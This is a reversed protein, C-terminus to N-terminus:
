CRSTRAPRDRPDARDTRRGRTRGQADDQRRSLWDRQEDAMTRQYAFPDFKLATHGSNVIDQIERIVGEKAPSSASTPIRTSRFRTACRGASCSTSRSASCRAAFIGFRSTSPASANSRRAAAAWIPSAASSSTGSGNSRRRTRAQSSRASRRLMASLARNAIKTTTTIEGWGSVGEDTTVEVFLFEGWYSGSSKVLWPRVGTIKM